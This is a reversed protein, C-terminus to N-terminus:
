IYTYPVDKLNEIVIYDEVKVAQESCEPDANVYMVRTRLDHVDIYSNWISTRPTPAGPDLCYIKTVKNDDDLEYAVGLLAHGWESGVYGIGVIPVCGYEIEACIKDICKRQSGKSDFYEVRWDKTKYSDIIHKLKTFVFGNKVLGYKNFLEKLLRCGNTRGPEKLEDFHVINEYVLSMAVSYVSCAGDIDGQKRHIAMLDNNGDSTLLKGMRLHLDPVTIITPM